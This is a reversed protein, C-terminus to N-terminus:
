QLVGAVLRRLSRTTHFIGADWLPKRMDKLITLCDSRSMNEVAQHCTIQRTELLTVPTTGKKVLQKMRGVALWVNKDLIALADKSLKDVVCSNHLLACAIDIFIPALAVFRLL